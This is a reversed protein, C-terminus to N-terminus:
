KFVDEFRLLKTELIDEVLMYKGTRMTLALQPLAYYDPDRGLRFINFDINTANCTRSFHDPDGPVHYLYITPDIGLEKCYRKYVEHFYPYQNEGGDSCVAIGNVVLKKERIM